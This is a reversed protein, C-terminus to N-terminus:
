TRSKLQPNHTLMCVVTTVVSDTTPQPCFSSVGSNAHFGGSWPTTVQSATLSPCHCGTSLQFRAQPSSIILVCHCAGSHIYTLITFPTGCCPLLDSCRLWTLVSSEPSSRIKLPSSHRFASYLCGAQRPVKEGGFNVLKSYGLLSPVSLMIVIATTKAM